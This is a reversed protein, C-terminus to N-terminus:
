EHTGFRSGFGTCIILADGREIDSGCAAELQRASVEGDSEVEVAAISAPRLFRDLEIEDIARGGQIAHSPADIHTGAHTPATVLSVDLKAGHEMRLLWEMSVAPLPPITMTGDALAQSADILTGM